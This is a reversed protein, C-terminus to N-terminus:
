ALSHSVAGDGSEELHHKKMIAPYSRPASLVPSGAPTEAHARLEPSIKRGQHKKGLNTKIKILIKKLVSTSTGGGSERSAPLHKPSKQMQKPLPLPTLSALM